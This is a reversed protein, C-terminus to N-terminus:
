DFDKRLEHLLEKGLAVSHGYKPHTCSLKVEGASFLKAKEVVVKRFHVASTKGDPTTREVDQDVPTTPLATGDVNLVFHNEVGGIQRLFRDRAVENDIEFFVTFTLSSGDPVLPNYAVLEDDIQSDGGREVALMEQIQLWVLDYCQFTVSSYPGLYVKRRKTLDAGFRYWDKRQNLYDNVSILDDKFIRRVNRARGVPAAVKM